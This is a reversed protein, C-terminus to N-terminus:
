ETFFDAKTRQGDLAVLRRLLGRWFTKYFPKPKQVPGPGMHRMPETCVVQSSTAAAAPLHDEQASCSKDDQMQKLLICKTKTMKLFGTIFEFYPSARVLTVIKVVIRMHWSDSVNGENKIFVLFIACLGVHGLYNKKQPGCTYCGRSNPFLM